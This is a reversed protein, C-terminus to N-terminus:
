LIVHWDASITKSIPMSVYNIRSLLCLHRVAKAWAPILGVAKELSRGKGCGSPPRLKYLFGGMKAFLNCPGGRVWTAPIVSTETMQAAYGPNGPSRGPVATNEATM